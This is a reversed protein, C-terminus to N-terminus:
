LARVKRGLDARGGEVPEVAPFGNWPIVMSWAEVCRLRYIREEQPFLNLLDEIGYTKPNNVLGGV